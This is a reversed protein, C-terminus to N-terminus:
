LYLSLDYMSESILAMMACYMGRSLWPSIGLWTLLSVNYFELSDLSRHLSEEHGHSNHTCILLEKSSRVFATCIIINKCNLSM